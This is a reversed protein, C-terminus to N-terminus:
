GVGTVMILGFLPGPTCFLRQYRAIVGAYREADAASWSV